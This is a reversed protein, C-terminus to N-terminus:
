QPSDIACGECHSGAAFKRRGNPKGKLHSPNPNIVYYFPGKGSMGAKLTCTLTNSSGSPSSQYELPLSPDPVPEQCPNINTFDLYFPLIYNWTVVSGTTVGASHIEFKSGDLGINLTANPPAAAAPPAAAPQAPPPSGQCGALTLLMAFAMLIKLRQM